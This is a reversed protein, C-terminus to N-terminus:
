DLFMTTWATNDGSAPGHWVGGGFTIVFIKGPNYPDPEVRKGWKFDYGKIKSWTEGKDTSRYASSNFGCAYYTKSRADFTIDHIHQDSSLVNKWTRGNDTTIFIGGGADPSFRGPTVRGWASLLLRDNNETDLALSMPGNTGDPLNMRKWSAAGDDSRYIMGDMDNGISGNDSRRCIVLFLTGQKENLTIRWAFPERGEIGNNKQEWSKGNDTSKFVGKGFACAYLTRNGPKSNPDIIIHTIAAEGIDASVPKWSRGGDATMVIGGQYGTIGHRRWMKPRPLDHIDSMAAWITGKVLPDYTIWYTSNIWNNPIGNDNGTASWSLCSDNSSLLGIDTNALLVHGKDFPDAALMYGTTVELGSSIWCGGKKRASYLQNWTKGGDRTGIARGFDTTYCINPDSPAVAIAFPNEGWGPGFKEDIWGKEYNPTYGTTGSTLKDKWALTWSKGYDRSVAVGLCLTDKSTRLDRFSVYLTSPNGSCTAITRYEPPEGDVKQFNLLGSQRNEWTKGGDGSYYIGSKDGEPNFYSKGSIAYLIFSKKENDYGAAYSTMKKVGKPCYLIQWQGKERTLVSKSGTLYITRDGASSSPDIFIKSIEDEIDKIKKWSKGYDSSSILAIKRDTSIVAFLNEKLEPDVAMALVETETSDKTVIMEEAHDGKSVLGTVQDPVPYVLHWTKGRNTTRFLGVSGAYVVEPDSPDFSFFRVPSHLSFMRWSKGGNETCYSGTMDCAVYAYDPDVPSVAPNFMAGGGGPGTREWRVSHDSPRKENARSCAALVSIVLILSCGTLSSLKTM